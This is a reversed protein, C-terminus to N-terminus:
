KVRNDYPNDCRLYLNATVERGSKSLAGKAPTRQMVIKKGTSDTETADRWQAPAPGAGILVALIATAVRLTMDGIIYRNECIFTGKAMTGASGIQWRAAVPWAAASASLLKIFERRRM